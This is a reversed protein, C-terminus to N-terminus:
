LDFDYEGTALRNEIIKKAKALKETLESIAEKDRFCVKVSLSEGDSRRPDYSAFVCLPADMVFMHAQMQWFYEFNKDIEFKLGRNVEHKIPDYPCKIEVPINHTTNDYKCCEAHYTNDHLVREIKAKIVGDPSSAVLDNLKVSGVPEIKLNLREELAERAADEYKNGWMTQRYEKKMLEKVYLERGAHNMTREAVVQYIIKKSTEGWLDGGRGKKMFAPMKSGTIKGLRKLFWEKTKQEPDQEVLQHEDEEYYKNAHSTGSAIATVTRLREEYDNFINM